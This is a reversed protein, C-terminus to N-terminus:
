EDGGKETDGAADEVAEALGKEVWSNGLEAPVDQISGVELKEGTETGDENLVAIEGTVKYKKTEIESM